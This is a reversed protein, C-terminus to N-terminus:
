QQHWIHILFAQRMTFGATQPLSEVKDITFQPRETLEGNIFRGRVGSAHPAVQHGRSTLGLLAACAREGQAGGLYLLKSVEQVACIKWNSDVSAQLLENRPLATVSKQNIRIIINELILALICNVCCYNGGSYSLYKLHLGKNNIM